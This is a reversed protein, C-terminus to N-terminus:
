PLRPREMYRTLVRLRADGTNTVSIWPRNFTEYVEAKGNAAVDVIRSIPADLSLRGPTASPNTIIITTYAGREGTDITVTAGPDIQYAGAMAPPVFPITAALLLAAMTLLYTPQLRRITRAM